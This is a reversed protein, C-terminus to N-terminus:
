KTDGEEGYRFCLMTIDDFQPAEGVFADIGERVNHLLQEPKANPDRNLAELMREAGFLENRVNMAEAVGDTYVFLSDGPHLEFEHERFKAGEMAAVAMSHRYISLEFSGDKRRIAPHEHGANAAIGKGTSIEIIAMWVTVFLEAENGECLQENVAGLIEAPTGGAMARNKLLTKAIVMFLAAPVGKGSVDAMVLCIHDEDILFFDYFDGGVEKAPTMSAYLDFEKREPFAPFIRPLMDAQIQTAIGLEAGIREKEATVRAVEDTYAAVRRTMEGFSNALSQIEDNHNFKAEEIEGHEYADVMNTLKGLPDTVNRKLFWLMGGLALTAVVLIFAGIFRTMFTNLDHRFSPMFIDLEVMAQLTGSDDFIPAWTELCGGYENEGTYLIEEHGRGAKIDPVLYRYEFDGYDFRDGWHNIKDPDDGEVQADFLYTFSDEGPVFVYLYGNPAFNEKVSNYFTILEAAYEDVEGTKAYHELEEWDTRNALIHVLQQAKENYFRLYAGRIARYSVTGLVLAVALMLCLLVTTIRRNLSQSKADKKM